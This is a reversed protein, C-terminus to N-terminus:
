VANKNFYYYFGNDPLRATAKLNQFGYILKRFFIGKGRLTYKIEQTNLKFEVLIKMM